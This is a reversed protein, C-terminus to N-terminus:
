INRHVASETLPVELVEKSDMTESAQIMEPIEAIEDIDAPPETLASYRPVSQDAASPRRRPAFFDMFNSKTARNPLAKYVRPAADAAVPADRDAVGPANEPPIPSNDNVPSTENM